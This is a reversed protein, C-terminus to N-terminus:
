AAADMTIIEFREIDLDEESTSVGDCIVTVADRIADDAQDDLTCIGDDDFPVMVSVRIAIDAKVVHSM